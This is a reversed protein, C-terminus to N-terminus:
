RRWKSLNTTFTLLNNFGAGSYVVFGYDLSFKSFYLGTGVSFGAIGPREVLMLEKRRNYDFGVRIHINKTLLIETQITFHRALKEAFGAKPVAITDGTLADITPKANPDNYTLDWKNIHHVLVSFRFPAHALKYSSAMQFEIPLPARESSTYKKLQIGANKVLATFLFGKEENVFSGSLDMGAGFSSYTELQSYLLYANGGVSIRPNLIKGFGIGTIMEFPTFTGEEVGNTATRNFKGYDVYKIYASATGQEKFQFAYNVMGYQIGGAQLAHNLGISNNMESNLLSPNNIGINVDKDRVSIFDGGLAASRANFQLDLLPFSHQGGIQANLSQLGIITAIFLIKTKM